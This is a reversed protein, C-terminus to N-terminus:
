PFQLIDHIGMEHANRRIQVTPNATVLIIPINDVLYGFQQILDLGTGDPLNYDLIVVEPKEASLKKVAEGITNACSIHVCDNRLASGIIECFDVEDDIILLTGSVIM